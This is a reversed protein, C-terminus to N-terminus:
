QKKLRSTLHLREFASLNLIGYMLISLFSFFGNLCAAFMMSLVRLATFTENVFGDTRRVWRQSYRLKGYPVYFARSLIMGCFEWPVCFQWWIKRVQHFVCFVTFFIDPNQLYCFTSTYKEGQWFFRSYTEKKSDRLHFQHCRFHGASNLHSLWTNGHRPVKRVLGHWSLTCSGISFLMERLSLFCEVQLRWSPVRRVSLTVFIRNSKLKRWVNCLWLHCSIKKKQREDPARAKEIKRKSYVNYRWKGM